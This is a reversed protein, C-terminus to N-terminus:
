SGEIIPIVCIFRLVDKGVNTFRHKENPAVFVTDGCRLDSEGAESWVVGEGSLVFVEHEWAHAHHASSAGPALEFVRMAFTPAGEDAGIVWRVTVGPMGDYTETEVDRYSRVIM